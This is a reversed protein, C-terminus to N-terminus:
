RVSRVYLVYDEGRWQPDREFGLPLLVADGLTRATRTRLAVRRTSGVADSVANRDALLESSLAILPEHQALYVAGGLRWSGQVALSSGPSSRLYKALQIGENSRVLRWGGVEHLVSLLLMPAFLERTWRRWGRAARAAPIWDVVRV